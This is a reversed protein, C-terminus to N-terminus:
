RDALPLRLGAVRRLPAGGPFAAMITRGTPDRLARYPVPAPPPGPEAAHFATIAEERTACPTEQGDIQVIWQRSHTM